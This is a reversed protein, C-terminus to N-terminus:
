GGQLHQGISTAMVGSQRLQAQAVRTALARASIPGLPGTFTQGARQGGPVNVLRQSQQFQPLSSLSPYYWGSRLGAVGGFLQVGPVNAPYQNLVRAGRTGIQNPALASHTFPVWEDTGYQAPVAPAFCPGVILAPASATSTPTLRRKTGGFM